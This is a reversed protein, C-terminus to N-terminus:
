RSRLVGPAGYRRPVEPWRVHSEARYFIGDVLRRLVIGKRSPLLPELLAWETDTLDGPAAVHQAVTATGLRAMMGHTRVIREDPMSETALLILLEALDNDKPFTDRIIKTVNEIKPWLHDRERGLMITDKLRANDAELDYEFPNTCLGDLQAANLVILAFARDIDIQKYAM